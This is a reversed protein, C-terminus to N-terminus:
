IDVWESWDDDGRKHKKKAVTMGLDEDFEIRRSKKSKKGKSKSKDEDFEEPEPEVEELDLKFLEEFSKVSEVKKKKPEEESAAEIVEEEAAEIEAEAAAVETESAEPALAEEAEGDEVAELAPEEIAEPEPEPEPEEPVLEPLREGFEEIKELTKPGIGQIELIKDPDMQATLVLNGATTIGAEQIAEILSESLEMQSLDMDFAGQPITDLVEKKKDQYAARKSARKDGTFKELRDVFAAMFDNEENSLIRGEAKRGMIEEVRLAAEDEQEALTKLDAENKLAFLWDSVTETLSKIDIRWGTLKAALRANQGDKGIALSLQDEPVVVLANKAGQVSEHLYVGVVRAPSIAKAIFETPSPNWEIVDIKEGHLERVIGQIRVGRMGVCAGVPDIGKQAASVAVKARFGPERAISRIEVVGHFIEPVENELLRRLFDRHTRSLIIQPGHGTEKVEAVLARVRDHIRFHEHPIMEKRPMSGEAKLELGITLGRPNAAQVIGSVIEGIQKEYLAYQASNEAMRIRTQIAQRATQAAVRGFDEPTSDVMVLDGLQAEPDFERAYELTAETLPNEVSEVVEKQALITIDGNEMNLLAEIEQATSANVSKRYASVMAASLAQLITDKPLGKEELVENFALMFENKM